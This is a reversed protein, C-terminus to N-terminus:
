PHILVSLLGRNIVLWPVFAGLETPSLINVEFMVVPHPSVPKNNYYKDWLPYIRLEPFERHIREHLERAFNTQGANNQMYYIHVDFGGRRSNDLPKPFSTYASSKTGTQPNVLSKGDASKE